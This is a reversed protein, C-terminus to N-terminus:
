YHPEDLLWRGDVLVLRWYGIFDRSSGSEATETFNAQVTASDGSLEAVSLQSFSIEATEDFRSDLNPERPYAARMRENWLAYATDFDGGAVAQYFSLVAAAPDGAVSATAPAPASPPTEVAVVLAETPAPTAVATPVPTPEPAAEPAPTATPPPAATATAHPTSPAEAVEDPTPIVAGGVAEPTRVPVAAQDSQHTGAYLAVGVLTLAALGWVIARNRM